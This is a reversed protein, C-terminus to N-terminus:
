ILGDAKLQHSKNKKCNNLLFPNLEALSCLSIPIPVGLSSTKFRSKTAFLECFLASAAHLAKSITTLDMPTLPGSELLRRIASSAPTSLLYAQHTFSGAM